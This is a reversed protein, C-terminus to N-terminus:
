SHSLSKYLRNIEILSNKLDANEVVTQKAQMLVKAQNPDEIAKKIKEALVQADNSSLKYCTNKNFLDNDYPLNGIVLPSKCYMAELGTNPTGDSHPVMITAQSHQYCAIMKNLSLHKLYIISDELQHNKVMEKITTAYDTEGRDDLLILKYAPHTQAFLAFGELVLEINYIPAMSRASFLYPEKCPSTSETIWRDLKNLDIGTRIVKAKEPQKLYKKIVENQRSSTSTICAVKRLAKIMSKRLLFHILKEKISNGTRLKQEMDVLIDSGRTTLVHNKFEALVPWYVNTYAYMSHCIDIAEEELLQLLQKKSQKLLSPNQIPYTNPLTNYVKVRENCLYEEKNTEAQPCIIICKHEQSLRNIWKCDHNDSPNAFFAINM